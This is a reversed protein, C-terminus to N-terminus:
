IKELIEYGFATSLNYTCMASRRSFFGLLKIINKNFIFLFNYAINVSFFMLFYKISGISRRYNGQPKNRVTM